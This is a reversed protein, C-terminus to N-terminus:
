RRTGAPHKRKKRVQLGKASDLALSLLRGLSLEKESRFITELFNNNYYETVITTGCLGLM